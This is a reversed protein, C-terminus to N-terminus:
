AARKKATPVYGAPQWPRASDWYGKGHFRVVEPRRIAMRRLYVIPDSSAIAIRRKALGAVIDDPMMPCKAQRVIAIIEDDVMDHYSPTERDAPFTRGMFARRRLWWGAGVLHVFEQREENMTAYFFQDQDSPGLRVKKRLMSLMQKTEIPREAEALIRRAEEIVADRAPPPMELSVEGQRLKELFPEVEARLYGSNLCKQLKRDPKFGAREIQDKLTPFYGATDASAARSITTGAASAAHSRESAPQAAVSHFGADPSTCLRTCRPASVTRHGPYAHFLDM